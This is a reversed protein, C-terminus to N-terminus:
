IFSDESEDDEEYVESIFSPNNGRYPMREELREFYSIKLGHRRAIQSRVWYPQNGRQGTVIVNTADIAFKTLPVLVEPEIAASADLLFIHSFHGPASGKTRLRFSSMFTSFIIKYKHLEDLAPCAFCEQDRNYDCLPLIDDPVEDRERFAAIARFMNSEPIVKKLSIMLEDCTTNRPACILIKCNPSTSYIQFVAGVVVEGTRTIKRTQNEAWDYSSVCPSGRILYPPSGQLLLIQRIANKQAPDLLQQGSRTVEIYPNVKRSTSKPFLFSQLLSDSAEEIAQHARKLCVRNFTFSIDYKDTKRHRSHFDEGFNVLLINNMRLQYNSKSVRYVLGQFPELKRECLRAHVLDRSLLFPRREPVSDIEFAVFTKTVKEHGNFKTKKNPGKHITIQQLELSVNRLKYDSWKKYYFDEAYLLAAFYSKYTSPSLPKRLVHPVIDNKILDEIDKPALYLTSLSDSDLIYEQANTKSSSTPHLTPERPPEPFSTTSPSPLFYSPKPTPTPLKSSSVLQNVSSRTLDSSVPSPSRLYSIEQPRLLSSSLSHAGFSSSSSSSSSISGSPTSHSSQPKSYHQLPSSTKANYSATSSKELTSSSVSHARFSSSNSKGCDPAAAHSSPKPFVPSSQPKSSHQLLNSTKATCSATSSKELTSSSLSHAGFSSSSSRGCNPAAAHSSPKPFVSSSQPKSSHQLLNSTKANYSATSSKELTSEKAKSYNPYHYYYLLPTVASTDPQIKQYSSSDSVDSVRFRESSNATYIERYNNDLDPDDCCCCFCRLIHLFVSM